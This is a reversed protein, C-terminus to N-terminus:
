SKCKKHIFNHRWGGNVTDARGRECLCPSFRCPVMGARSVWILDLRPSDEKQCQRLLASRSNSPMVGHSSPTVSTKQTCICLLMSYTLLIVCLAKRLAYSLTYLPLVIRYQKLLHNMQVRLLIVKKKPECVVHGCKIEMYLRLTFPKTLEM